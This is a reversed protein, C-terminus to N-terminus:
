YSKGDSGFYERYSCIKNDRVDFAVAVRNKYPQGFLNGEDRFEFIVTKENSTISDISALKLGDEFSQSVYEFFEKAREKGENLGHFKGMPFWFTFDDTTMDLFKQWEGTALGHTFHAFAQKAVKLTNEAEITM